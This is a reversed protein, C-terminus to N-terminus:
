DLQKLNHRKLNFKLDFDILKLPLCGLYNCGFLSQLRPNKFSGSATEVSMKVYGGSSKQALNLQVDFVLATVNTVLKQLQSVNFSGIRFSTLKFTSVQVALLFANAVSNRPTSISDFEVTCQLRIKLPTPTEMEM